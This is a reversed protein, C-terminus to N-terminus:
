VLEMKINEWIPILAESAPCSLRTVPIGSRVARIVETDFPIRGVIPISESICFEEIKARLNDQLDFRNLIVMIKPNFRKAVNIVRRLDHLASVSPETVILVVDIGSLTSILPCGTGPPGDVLLWSAPPKVALARKKVENILLGSTGSGPSLRAHILMGKDTESTYIEGNKLKVMTIANEPCVYECVGCGECRVPDVSFGDTKKIIAGFRCHDYCIGCEICQTSNILASDLGIYPETKIGTPKLLLELNAADVDCDALIQSDANIDALAASVMTKGTGGKGSIVAIKIM